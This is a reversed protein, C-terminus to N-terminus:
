ELDGDDVIPTDDGPTGLSSGQLIESETLLPFIEMEPAEYFIKKEM